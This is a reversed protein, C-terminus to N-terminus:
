WLDEEKTRKDKKPRTYIVKYQEEFGDFCTSCGDRNKPETEGGRGLPELHVEHGAEEYLEVAETLRPETAVFQRKWGRSRLEVERAAPGRRQNVTM